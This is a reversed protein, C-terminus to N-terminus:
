FHDKLHKDNTLGLVLEVAIEMLRHVHETKGLDQFDM